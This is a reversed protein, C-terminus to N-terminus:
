DNNQNLWEHYKELTYVLTGESLCRNFAYAKSYGDQDAYHKEIETNAYETAKDLIEGWLSQNLLNKFESFDKM